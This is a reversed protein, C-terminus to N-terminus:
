AKEWKAKLKVGCNLCIVTEWNPNHPIHECNKEIETIGWLLATHTHKYMETDPGNMCWMASKLAGEGQGYVKPLTTLHTDLLYNARNTIQGPIIGSGAELLFNEPKFKFIM